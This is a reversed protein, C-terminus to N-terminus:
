GLPRESQGSVWDTVERFIDNVFGQQIQKEGSYNSTGTTGDFTEVGWSKVYKEWRHYSDEGFGETSEESRGYLYIRLQQDPKHKRYLIATDIYDGNYKTSNPTEGMNREYCARPYAVDIGPLFNFSEGFDRANLVTLINEEPFSVSDGAVHVPKNNLINRRETIKATLWQLYEKHQEEPTKQTFTQRVSPARLVGSASAPSRGMAKTNIARTNLRGFIYRQRETGPGGQAMGNNM